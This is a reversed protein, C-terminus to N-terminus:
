YLSINKTTSRALKSYVHSYPKLHNLNLQPHSILPVNSNSPFKQQSSSVKSLKKLEKTSLVSNDENLKTSNKKPKITQGHFTFFVSCDDFSSIDFNTKSPSRQSLSSVTSPRSISKSTLGNSQLKVLWKLSESHSYTTLENKRRRKASNIRETQLPSLKPQEMLSFLHSKKVFYRKVFFNNLISHM